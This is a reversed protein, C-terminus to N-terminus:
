GASPLGLLTRLHRVPPSGYDLVTDHLTRDTWDPHAVRLDAVLGRVELYGVYYTCLQTSTLQVRRWKGAAEGEEQYGRVTMLEMAAAQDLDGVHFSIDLITNIIMRLQMKLQQMRVAAAAEASVDSRYGREAMLEEAYVAWGEIFSGSGFVSRILTDGRYRRAHSLQEVHGPMGEHVTLNHLMHNNYERYFSRVREDPWDAPTPSVAFRTHLPATELPGVGQCYAVAVGRDIEPMEQVEVPDHLLTLLDHQEVFRTTEALAARCRDLIDASTPVDAALRDYEAAIEAHGAPRGLRAGVLEALEAEVRALDTYAQALLDAPQWPTALTLGLKRAFLREGLRASRRAAPLQERLWVQYDLVAQAAGAMPEALEADLGAQKALRAIEGTILASTGSLQGIATELHVACPDTLRQRAAALYDPVARLRGAVSALRDPLPAFDQAIVSYLAQGPNHQLADWGPEDLETLALLERSAETHLVERDVAAATDLEAGDGPGTLGDLRELLRRLEAVRRDAAARSPDGLRDDHSHDGLVTAEAPYQACFAAIAEDALDIFEGTV